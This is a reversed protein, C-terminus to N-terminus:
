INKEGVARAALLGLSWGGQNGVAGTILWNLAAVSVVNFLAPSASISLIMWQHVGLTPMFLYIDRLHVQHSM